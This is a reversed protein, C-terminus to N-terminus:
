SEPFSEPSLRDLYLLWFLGPLKHFCSLSYVEILCARLISKQALEFSEDLLHLCSFLDSFMEKIPLVTTLTCIRLLATTPDPWVYSINKQWPWRLGLLMIVVMMTMMVITMMVTTMMMTTMMLTTTVMTTMMLTTMVMTTIVMTTMMVNPMTMTTMVMATMMVTTMIMTTM